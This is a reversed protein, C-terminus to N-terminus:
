ECVDRTGENKADVLTKNLFVFQTSHLPSHSYDLCEPPIPLFTLLELGTVAVYLSRPYM